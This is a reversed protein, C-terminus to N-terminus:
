VRAELEGVPRQTWDTPDFGVAAVQDNEFGPWQAKVLHGSELFPMVRSVDVEQPDDGQAFFLPKGRGDNVTLSAAKKSLQVLM